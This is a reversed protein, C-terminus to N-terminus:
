PMSATLTVTSFDFAPNITAATAPPAAITIAAITIIITIVMLLFLHSFCFNVIRKRCRQAGYDRDDRENKRARVAPYRGRSGLSRDVAADHRIGEAFGVHRKGLIRANREREFRRRSRGVVHFDGGRVARYPRRCDLVARSGARRTIAAAPKNFAVRVCASRRLVRVNKFVYGRAVVRHVNGELEEARYAAFANDGVRYELRFAIGVLVAQLGRGALYGSRGFDLAIYPENRSATVARGREVRSYAVDCKACGTRKGGFEIHIADRYGRRDVAVAYDRAALGRRKRRLVSRESPSYARTHVRRRAYHQFEAVGARVVHAYSEAHRFVAASFKEGFRVAARFRFGLIVAKDM